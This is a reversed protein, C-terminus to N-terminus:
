ASVMGRFVQHGGILILAAVAIIVILFIHEGGIQGGWPTFPQTNSLRQQQAEWSADAAGAADVPM